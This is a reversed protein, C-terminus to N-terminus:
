PCESSRERTVPEGNLRAQEGDFQIPYRRPLDNTATLVLAAESDRVDIRWTGTDQEGGEGPEPAGPDRLRERWFRVYYRGDQCLHWTQATYADAGAAQLKRTLMMGSLRAYWEKLAQAAEEGIFETSAAVEDLLNEFYRAEEKPGAMQYVIANRAPGLVAVARGVHDGGTYVATLRSGERNVSGVPYLVLGVDFMQPENLLVILEDRSIESLLHVIGLGAKTGSDLFVSNGAPLTARWDPPVVFSVGAFPSRLRTGGRYHQGIRLDEVLPERLGAAERASTLPATHGPSIGVSPVFGSLLFAVLAVKAHLALACHLSRTADRAALRGFAAGLKHRTWRILDSGIKM